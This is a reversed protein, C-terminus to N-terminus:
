GMGAAHRALAAVFEVAVDRGAGAFGEALRQWRPADEPAADARLEDILGLLQGYDIEAAPWVGVARLGREEIHEIRMSRASGGAMRHALDIYGARELRRLVHFAEDLTIGAREAVDGADFGGSRIEGAEDAKAIEELVSRDREWTSEIM